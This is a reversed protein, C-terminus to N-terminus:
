DSEGKELTALASRLVTGALPLRVEPALEALDKAARALATGREKDSSLLDAADHGDLLVALTVLAQERAALSRLRNINAM